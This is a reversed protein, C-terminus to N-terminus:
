ISKMKRADEEEETFCESEFDSKVTSGGRNSGSEVSEESGSTSLVDEPTVHRRRGADVDKDDESEAEFSSMKVPPEYGIAESEVHCQKAAPKPAPVPAPALVPAPAPARAPTRAATAPPPPAPVPVQAPSPAATQAYRPWASSAGFSTGGYEGFPVYAYQPHQQQPTPPTPQQYTPQSPARHSSIPQSLGRHSSTTAVQHPPQHLM